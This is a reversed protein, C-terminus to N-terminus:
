VGMTKIIIEVDLLISYNEIYYYDYKTKNILSFKNSNLRYLGTIGPKVHLSNDYISSESIESGVVSLKGILIFWLYPLKQILKYSSSYYFVNIQQDKSINIIVDEKKFFYYFLHLPMTVIIAILSFMIDFIRKMVIHKKEYYPLEMKILSINDIYEIEGKSLLINEKEPQIKLIVKKSTVESLLDFINYKNLDKEHIIIEDLGNRYINENFQDFNGLFPINLNKNSYDFYGVINKYINKSNVIKKLINEADENYGVFAVRKFFINESTNLDMIRYKNFFVYAYRWFLSIVSHSFFLLVIIARSFAITSIFYVMSSTLLLSIISTVFISRNLPLDSKYAQTFYAIYNWSLIYCGLLPIHKVLLQTSPETNHYTYYWLPLVLLYSIIISLNDFARQLYSKANLKISNTTDKLKYSFFVIPRLLYNSLLGKSNKKYFTLLSRFFVDKVNFPATKMSEGRYHITVADANYVVKYGIKKARICFDTEEFFLFYDEDFGDLKNFLVKKFVMCAGSVSDVEHSISSPIFTYNYRGFIKSKPFLYSLGTVQFVSTLLDPYKRRSSLQFEGEPNIIKSGVIGIKDDGELCNLLADITDPKLITDPNILLINEGSSISVGQNVGMSFGNNTENKILTVDNYLKSIESCSNDHSNNDVVIIEYSYTTNSNLISNITRKIFHSTNYNVIIISLKM